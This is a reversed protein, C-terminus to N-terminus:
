CCLVSASGVDRSYSVAGGLLGCDSCLCAFEGFELM